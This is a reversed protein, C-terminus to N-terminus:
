HGDDDGLHELQRAIDDDMKQRLASLEEKFTAGNIVGRQLADRYTLTVVQKSVLTKIIPMETPTWGGDTNKSVSTTFLSFKKIGNHDRGEMSFTVTLKDYSIESKLRDLIKSM